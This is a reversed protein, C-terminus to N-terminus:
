FLVQPKAHELAESIAKQFCERNPFGGLSFQAVTFQQQFERKKGVVKLRNENEGKGLSKMKFVYKIEMNDEHMRLFCFVHELTPYLQSSPPVLKVETYEGKSKEYKKQFQFQAEFSQIYSQLYSKLKIKLDLKGSSEKVPDGYLLFVSGHKDTIPCDTPLQLKWDYVLEEQTAIKKEKALLLTELEGWTNEEKAKIKKFVGYALVLAIEDLTITESGSNKIRLSGEVSDGQEWEEQKTELYYELPRQLLFGKM